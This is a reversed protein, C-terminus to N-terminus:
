RVRRFTSHGLAELEPIKVPLAECHGLFLMGGPLLSATVNQIARMVDDPKFYILVNRLFVADFQVGPRGSPDMLNFHRFKARSRLQSNVRYLGENRGIGKEFYKRLLDPPVEGQVARSTYVGDSAAQLVRMNIDTGLIRFDGRPHAAQLSEHLVMGITWAEEGTSAAASWALFRSGPRASARERAFRDLIRFHEIERFFNTKNVTMMHVFTQFESADGQVVRLYGDISPISLEEMRRTVKVVMRSVRHNDLHIGTREVLIRALGSIASSGSATKVSEPGQDPIALSKAIRAM